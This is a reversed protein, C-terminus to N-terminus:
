WSSHIWVFAQYVICVLLLSRLLSHSPTRELSELPKNAQFASSPKSSRHQWAKLGLGGIEIVGAFFAQLFLITKAQQLADINKASSM